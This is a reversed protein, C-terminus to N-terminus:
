SVGSVGSTGSVGSNGSIGSTGSVGSVLWGALWGIRQRPHALKEDLGLALRTSGGSYGSYDV